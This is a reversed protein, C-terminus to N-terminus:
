KGLAESQRMSVCCGTSAGWDSGEDDVVGVWSSEFSPSWGGRAVVEVRPGANTNCGDYLVDCAVASERLPFFRAAATSALRGELFGLCYNQQKYVECPINMQNQQHHMVNQSLVPTKGDEKGDEM